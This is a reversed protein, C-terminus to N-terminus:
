SNSFACKNCFYYMSLTLPLQACVCVCLYMSVLSFFVSSCQFAFFFFFSGESKDSQYSIMIKIDDATQLDKQIVLAIFFKRSKM